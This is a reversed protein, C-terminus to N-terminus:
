QSRGPRGSMPLSICSASANKCLAFLREKAQASNGGTKTLVREYIAIAEDYNGAKVLLNALLLDHREDYPYYTLAVAERASIIAGSLDGQGAQFGAWVYWIKAYGPAKNVTDSLLSQNKQWVLNRDVTIVAFALVVCLCLITLSRASLIPMKDRLYLIVAPIVFM